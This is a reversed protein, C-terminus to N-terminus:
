KDFQKAVLELFDRIALKQPCIAECKGCKICDSAKGNKVTLIEEYYFQSNWDNFHKKANYCAFLDPILIKKPCGAVCYRCATCAIMNKAHIIDAVKKTAALEKEDLPRFDRMFSVNEELQELTSMGSLVMMVSDPSAAFRIALNAPSIGAESVAAKADDTLRVLNGGKVPEMVIVPKGHKECTELCLRSQVAADDYDLYNYQIQVVEIQPYETLIGDLVGANDHFSIGFHKIKGERKFKLAEEYANKEKFYEFVSENQAHMLYFDFYDVGCTKLQSEFFPRIDATTKFYEQTLKDTLVFKDRPYRSSICKKVAVESMGFHYGHATDFYTFGSKIFEDVMEMTKDFDPHAEDTGPLRMLGFGLKKNLGFYNNM